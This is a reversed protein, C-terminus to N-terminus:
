ASNGAVLCIICTNEAGDLVKKLYKLILRRKSQLSAFYAVSTSYLGLSLHHISPHIFALQISVSYIVDGGLFLCVWVLPPPPRSIIIQAPTTIYVDGEFFICKLFGFRVSTVIGEISITPM